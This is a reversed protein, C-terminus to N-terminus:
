ENPSSNSWVQNLILAMLTIATLEFGWVAYMLWSGVSLALGSWFKNFEFLM